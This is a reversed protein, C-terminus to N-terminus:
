RRTRTPVHHAVRVTSRQQYRQERLHRPAMLALVVGLGLFAVLAVRVVYLATEGRRRRPASPSRHRAPVPSQARRMIEEAEAEADALLEALRDIKAELRALTDRVWQEPDGRAPVGSPGSATEPM